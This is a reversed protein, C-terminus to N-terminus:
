DYIGAASQSMPNLSANMEALSCSGEFGIHGSWGVCSIAALGMKIEQSGERSERPEHSLVTSCRSPCTLTLLTTQLPPLTVAEDASSSSRRMLLMHKHMPYVLAYRIAEFCSM